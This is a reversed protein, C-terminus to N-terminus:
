SQPYLLPSKDPVQNPPLYLPSYEAPFVLDTAERLLLRADRPGTQAVKEALAGLLWRGEPWRVAMAKACNELLQYIRARTVGLLKAHRKITEAHGGIQMRDTALKGIQPGLDLEIQRLLPTILQERLEAVDPPPERELSALIWRQLPPIFRPLLELQIEETRLSTAVAVHVMNFLDLISVVRKAGHTPLNRIQALSLDAYEKMTTHWLVTSLNRLSPALRGLKHDLFGFTRVTHCWEQWAEESVGALDITTRAGKSKGTAKAKPKAMGFPQESPLNRGVRKLLDFLGLMKTQGVGPTALLDDFSRELLEGLPLDLLALPLKRDTPLVWFSLPRALRGDDPLELLPKRLRQYTGALRYHDM